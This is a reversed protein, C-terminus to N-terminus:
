ERWTLPSSLFLRKEDAMLRRVLKTGIAAARKVPIINSAVMYLEFDRGNMALFIESQDIVYTVGHVNPPSEYLGM